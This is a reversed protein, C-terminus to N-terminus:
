FFGLNLLLVHAKRQWGIELIKRWPKIRDSGSELIMFALRCADPDSCATPVDAGGEVDPDDVRAVGLWASAAM